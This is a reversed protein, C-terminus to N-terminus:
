CYNGFKQMEHSFLSLQNANGLNSANRSEIIFEHWVIRSPDLPDDYIFM